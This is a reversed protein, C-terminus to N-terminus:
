KIPELYVLNHAIEPCDTGFDQIFGNAQACQKLVSIRISQNTQM